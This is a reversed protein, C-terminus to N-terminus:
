NKGQLRENRIGRLRLKIDNVLSNGCSQLELDGDLMYLPNLKFRGNEYGYLEQIETIRRKGDNGRSMHIMIDIAQSIQMRISDAPIDAASLYMAELRSLMGSVSNSHGTSMGSHGTNLAQLMDAVEDGRVEGVIIRDPRMRLSAKILNKMDIGGRGVANANRCEMSVLNGTNILQLELSDEVTIVRETNPIYEALANLFTTKGSSTGGSIFINMGAEVLAKLDEMCKAPLCGTNVMEEMSIRTKSFKRITLAPGGAAVNKMVANVRSGDELRADLIPDLESVERHVSAAIRRIVKELSEESEFADNVREINGNKEIFVDYPGNAMIENIKEDNLLYSLEGLAGGVKGAIRDISRALHNYEYEGELSFVSEEIANRIDTERNWGDSLIESLVKESIEKIEKELKDTM